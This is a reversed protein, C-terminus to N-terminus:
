DMSLPDFGPYSTGLNYKSAMEESTRQMGVLSRTIEVQGDNNGDVQHTLDHFETVAQNNIMMNVMIKYTLVVHESPDPRYELVHDFKDPIGATLNTLDEPKGSVGVTLVEPIESGDNLFKIRDCPFCIRTYAGSFTGSLTTITPGGTPSPYSVGGVTQKGLVTSDAAPQDYTEQPTNLVKLYIQKWGNCDAPYGAGPERTVWFNATPDSGGLGSYDDATQVRWGVIYDNPQVENSDLSVTLSESFSDLCRIKTLKEKNILSYQTM